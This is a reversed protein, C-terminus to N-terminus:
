ESRLGWRLLLRTANPTIQIGAGVARLERASELVTVRHGAHALTHAAALGGLGAGVIVINLSRAARRGGYLPPVNELSIHATSGAPTKQHHQMYPLLPPSLPPTDLQHLLNQGKQPTHFKLALTTFTITTFTIITFTITTFYPNHISPHLDNM